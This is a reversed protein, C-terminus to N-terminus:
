FGLQELMKEFVSESHFVEPLHRGVFGHIKEADIEETDIMVIIYPMILRKSKLLIKPVRQHEEIWYSELTRYPYLTKGIRIGIEDIVVDIIEPPRAAYLSLVFGALITVLGFLINNFIIATVAIAAAVIGVAWFWDSSRQRPEYEYTQWHIPNLNKM